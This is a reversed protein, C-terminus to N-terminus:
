SSTPRWAPAYALVANDHDLDSEPGTEIAVLWVEGGAARETEIRSRLRPPAYPILSWDSDAARVAEVASAGRGLVLITDGSTDIEKSM